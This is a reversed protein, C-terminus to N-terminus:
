QCQQKWIDALEKVPILCNLDLITKYFSFGLERGLEEKEKGKGILLQIEGPMSTPFLRVM